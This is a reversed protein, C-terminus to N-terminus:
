AFCKTAPVTLFLTKLKPLTIFCLQKFGVINEMFLFGFSKAILKPKKANV